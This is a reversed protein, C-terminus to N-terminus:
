GGKKNKAERLHGAFINLGEDFRKLNRMFKELNVDKNVRSFESSKKFNESNLYDQCKKIFRGDDKKANPGYTKGLWASFVKSGERFKKPDNFVEFLGDKPLKGKKLNKPFDLLLNKFSKSKLYKIYDEMFKSKESMEKGEWENKLIHCHLSIEEINAM